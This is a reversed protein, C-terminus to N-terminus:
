WGFAAVHGRGGCEMGQGQPVLRQQREVLAVLQAADATVQPNAGGRHDVLTPPEVAGGVCQLGPLRRPAHGARADDNQFRQLRAGAEDVLPM